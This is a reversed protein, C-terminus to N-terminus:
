TIGLYEVATRYLDEVTGHNSIVGTWDQYNDMSTESVHNPTGTANEIGHRDIRWVSGGWRRIADAENPFRVDPIVWRENGPNSKIHYELSKIWIDQDFGYRMAETGVRQLIDRPTTGWFDHHQEKFEGYWYRNDLSFIERCAGKLSDAFARRMFNHHQVLYEAVTDKGCRAKYGLGIITQSM